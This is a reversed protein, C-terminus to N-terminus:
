GLGVLRKGEDVLVASLVTFPVTVLNQGATALRSKAKEWVTSDRAADLFEHGVCTLRLIRAKPGNSGRTTLDAVDALGAQGILHCHYGIKDATYGEVELDGPANGHEHQEVILLISRVLEMDRQM